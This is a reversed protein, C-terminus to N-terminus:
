DEPGAPVVLVPLTSRHLVSSSVSGLLAAGLASRGHSGVVILTADIQRAKEVIADAIGATGSACATEASASLGAREALRQGETALQRAREGEAEGAGEQDFGLVTAEAAMAAGMPTPLVPTVPKYVTLVVAACAPLIEGAREIARQSLESGDYAILLRSARVSEVPMQM